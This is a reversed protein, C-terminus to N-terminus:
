EIRQQKRSNHSARVVELAAALEAVKLDKGTEEQYMFRPKRDSGFFVYGGQVIGEGYFNGDISKELVRSASDCIIGVLALPNLIDVIGVKRDGLARYFAYTKDCYVPFDFYKDVFEVLGDDDVATEKVIGFIKVGEFIDPYM